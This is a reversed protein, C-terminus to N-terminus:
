EKSLRQVETLNEKIFSLIDKTVERRFYETKSVLDSQFKIKILYELKSIIKPSSTVLIHPYIVDDRRNIFGNGKTDAIGIKIKNPDVKVKYVKRNVVDYKIFCNSIYLSYLKNSDSRKIFNNHSMLVQSDLNSNRDRCTLKGNLVKVKLSCEKSSCTRTFYKGDIILGNFKIKNDCFECKPTVTSGFLILSCYEEWTLNYNDILYKSKIHSSFSKGENLQDEFKMRTLKKIEGQNKIIYNNM